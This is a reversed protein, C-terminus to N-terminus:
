RRLAHRLAPATHRSNVAQEDGTLTTLAHQDVDVLVVAQPDRPPFAHVIVRRLAALETANIASRQREYAQRAM